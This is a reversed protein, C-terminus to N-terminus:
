NLKLHCWGEGNEADEDESIYEVKLVRGFREREEDTAEKIQRDLLQKSFSLNLDQNIKLGAHCQMDIESEITKM